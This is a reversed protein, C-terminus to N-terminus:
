VAVNSCESSYASRSAHCRYTTQLLGATDDNVGQSHVKRRSLGDRVLICRLYIRSFCHHKQPTRHKCITAYLETHDLRPQSRISQFHTGDVILTDLTTDAPGLLVMVATCVNDCSHPLSSIHLLRRNLVRSHSSVQLAWGNGSYM